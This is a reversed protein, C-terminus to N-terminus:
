KKHPVNFTVTTGQGPVSYIELETGFMQKLRKNTNVIGIGRSQEPKSSLVENIKEKDMGVGDDQVIVESHDEFRVVKILITGGDIKKLIGHRIANEVLTQISLPPILLDTATNVEWEIHLRDGFREKEIYLYSNLLELEHELSVARELNVPDFSKQLYQGFKNLLVTMRDTDVESLSVITNLTNFLFHPQIQAQLWAAEMQLRESISQKLNTLANVRAKLELSNVPKSIYDNAGSLFGTVIDQIQSRATILLIPLESISFQERIMRSLEYGSMTPMMVDAIILDWERRNLHMLAEQGSTVTVLDYQASPLINSLVKLNIPDDDVALIKPRDNLSLNLNIETADVYTPPPRFAAAVQHEAEHQKEIESLKNEDNEFAAALPITFTFVSGQNLVSDVTLEGKHMEVLQKCISLGLGLGGEVATSAQEYPLFVRSQTKTDMGIGTDVVQIYALGHKSRVRITISGENTFKVANHILNYLIQILRNKDAEIDPFGSPIDTALRINKKEVMFKFMDLVGSVITEINLPQKDLLIGKEKLRTIDILDNLMLSMRRSITILLELNEKIHSSVDKKNNVMSEAINIIGHLPNRLEHSTNALFQDKMKDEEQLKISLEEKEESEEFFKKLWYSSFLVIALILDIPYFVPFHSPAWSKIVGWVLSSLVSIAALLILLVDRKENVIFRYMMIAIALYSMFVIIYNYDAFFLYKLPLLLMLICSAACLYSPYVLIKMKNEKFFMHKIFLLLFGTTGVYSIKILKYYWIYNLPIVNLLLRDDDLIISISFFLIGLAFYLLEKKKPRLSFLIFAYLSHILMIIFVIFQWLASLHFEKNIAHTTGFKISKAIGGAFINDFNSVHLLLEIEGNHTAKLESSLPVPDGQHTESSDSPVGRVATEQGNVFLKAATRISLARIEYNLDIDKPVLIKLYYTGYGYGNNQSESFSDKWNGPVSIFDDKKDTKSGPILLAEPYFKWEGDLSITERELGDWNRLDLIGQEAEPHDSSNYHYFWIFRCGTLVLIFLCAALITKTKVKKTM